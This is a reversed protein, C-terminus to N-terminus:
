QEWVKINAKLQKHHGDLYRFKGVAKPDWVKYLIMPTAANNKNRSDSNTVLRVVQITDSKTFGLQARSIISGDVFLVSDGNGFYGTTGSLITSSVDLTDSSIQPVLLPYTQTASKTLASETELVPVMVLIGKQLPKKNLSLYKIHKYYDAYKCNLCDFAWKNDERSNHKERVELLYQWEVQCSVKISMPKNDGGMVKYDSTDIVVRFVKITDVPYFIPSSGQFKIDQPNLVQTSGVISFCLFIALLLFKM